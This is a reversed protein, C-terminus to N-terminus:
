CFYMTGAMHEHTQRFGEFSKHYVSGQGAWDLSGAGELDTIEATSDTMFLREADQPDYHNRARACVNRADTKKAHVSADILQIHM